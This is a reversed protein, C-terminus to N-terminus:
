APRTLGSAVRGQSRAGRSRARRPDDAEPEPRTRNQRAGCRGARSPACSMARATSGSRVCSRRCWVGESGTALRTQHACLGGDRSRRGDDLPRDEERVEGTRAPARVPHRGGGRGRRRQAAGGPRAPVRLERRCGMMTKEAELEYHPCCAQRKQAALGAPLVLLTALALVLVERRLMICRGETSTASARHKSGVGLPVPVGTGRSRGYSSTRGRLIGLFTPSADAAPPTSATEVPPECRAGRLSERESPM